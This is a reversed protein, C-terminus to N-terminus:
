PNPPLPVLVPPPPPTSSSTGTGSGFYSAPAAPPQPPAAPRQDPAPALADLPNQPAAGPLIADEKCVLFPHGKTDVGISGGPKLPLNIADIHKDAFDLVIQTATIRWTGNEANKGKTIFTGDPKFVRTSGWHIGAFYWEGNTLAAATSQQGADMPMPAQAAPQAPPPVDPAAAALESEWTATFLNGFTDVGKTGKLDLPLFLKEHHDPYTVVIENAVHQWKIIVPDTSGAITVTGDTNFLREDSWKNGTCKWKGKSLMASIQPDTQAAASGSSRLRPKLADFPSEVNTDIDQSAAVYQSQFQTATLGNGHADVGPTGKPRIPLSLFDQHDHFTMVLQNNYFQWKVVEKKESREITMFGKRDFVRDNSWNGGEFHWISSILIETAEAQTQHQAEGYAPSGPFCLAAIFLAAVAPIIGKANM